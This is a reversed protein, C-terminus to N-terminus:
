GLQPRVDAICSVDIFSQVTSYAVLCILLLVVSSTINQQTDAAAGRCNAKRIEVDRRQAMQARCSM